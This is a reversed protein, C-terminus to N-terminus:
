RRASKSGNLLSQVRDAKAAAEAAVKSAALPVDEIEPESAPDLDDQDISDDGEAGAANYASNLDGVEIVNTDDLEVLFKYMDGNPTPVKDPLVSVRVMTGVPVTRIKRDLDTKGWVGLNGKPTQLFHIDAKGSKSKKSDVQRTGLYYGEVTTPNAKRTQKNIGGLATTTEADLSQVAKFSM